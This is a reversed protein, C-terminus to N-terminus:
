KNDYIMLFCLLEVIETVLSPTQLYQNKVGEM